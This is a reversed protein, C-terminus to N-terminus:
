ASSDRAPCCLGCFGTKPPVIEFFLANRGSGCM